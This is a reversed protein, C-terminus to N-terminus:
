ASLSVRACTGVSPVPLPTLRFPELARYAIYPTYPGHFTQHILAGYSTNPRTLQWTHLSISPVASLVFLFLPRLSSLFFRHADQHTVHEFQTQCSDVPVGDREQQEYRLQGFIYRKM